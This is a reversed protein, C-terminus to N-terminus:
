IRPKVRVATRIDAIQVGTTTLGQQVEQFVPAAGAPDRITLIATFPIGEPPVAEATRTTYKILLRWSTSKGAGRPSHMAYRKVPNWKLGHEVLDAEYAHGDPVGPLYIPAARGKWGGDLQAQQLAADVNVRMFEAGYRRDIPASSVLTLSASGRCKGPPATLSQPWSFPLVIQQDPPLRTAIVITAEHPSRDLMELASIPMGFGVLHRAFPQLQKPAFVKPAESHHILLAHLTERSVEGEIAADLHALCKAAWPAAYSTGCGAVTAGTPDISFLGEDLVSCLTGGGGVCAVDPKAGARLGPGRRTYCAPAYAICSSLDPPNLAGVAINRASEAPMEIGDNRGAAIAALAGAETEPWEPRPNERLNGASIVFIVNHAEAIEDLRAAYVSYADEAVPEPINLSFNFIRTGWRAQANAVASEVENFFDTLGNPYYDSFATPHNEDPFVNIDVINVGDPDRSVEPGNLANGNVIIGSIFSGHALDMHEDALLGHRGVVWPHLTDTVGGDIVGVIPYNLADNKTPLALAIPRARTPSPPAAPRRARSSLVGPLRVRRVLPHKDLFALLQEHRAVTTDFPVIDRSRVEARTLQPILAPQNSRELRLLFRAADGGRGAVAITRVGLGLGRLGERFTTFLQRRAPSTADWREEPPIPEFLDVLYHGGTRSNSLWSVADAASFKRRDDPGYLELREIAGVESRLRTPNPTPKPPDGVDRWRTEPEAKTVRQGLERLLSPTAEFHMEGLSGGGVLTWRDLRLLSRIPRHSKAWAGRRLIVKIVGIPGEPQAAISTALANAQRELQTKHAAFAKDRDAFFDHPPGGGDPVDRAQQYHEPNLVIQLPNAM